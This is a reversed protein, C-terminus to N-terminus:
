KDIVVSWGPPGQIVGNQIDLITEALRSALPGAGASQNNSDLPVPYEVNRFSIAKVPSVICATGAGFAELLRNEKAAEIVDQITFEKESVEFENWSRTLHLISDRTVGPLIMGNLPPTVLEKKGSKNKWFCFFNMTGVETVKDGLLWLVQSYGKRSAELAPKITPAYNGGVKNNGVGGPWSRINVDDAFLKVPVFGEKFYPGVPSLIVYLLVKNPAAVGLKADTAIATPRIYLSYGRGSPIWDRELSVLQAICKEVEKEAIAPMSFRQMSDKLRKMNMDPRFLRPKSNIDRYAKLGEFCELGYHLVLASPDLSIPHYPTIRPNSWGEHSSWEVELMHDTFTHGFVLDEKRKPKEKPNKTMEITLKNFDIPTEQKFTTTTTATATATGYFRPPQQAQQQQQQQQLQQQQLQQQQQFRSLVIPRFFLTSLRPVLSIM